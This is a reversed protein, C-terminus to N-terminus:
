SSGRAAKVYVGGATGLGAEAAASPRFLGEGMGGCARCRGRESRRRVSRLSSEDIVYWCSTAPTVERGSSIGDALADDDTTIAGGDGPAGLNKGPYFGFGAADGLGGARLGRHRAGGAQAADEIV